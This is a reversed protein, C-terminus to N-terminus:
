IESLHLHLCMGCFHTLFYYPLCKVALTPFRALFSTDFILFCLELNYNAVILTVSFTLSGEANPWMDQPDKPFLEQRSRRDLALGWNLGPLWKINPLYSAYGKLGFGHM